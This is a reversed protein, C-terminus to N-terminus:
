SVFNSHLIGCYSKVDKREITGEKGAVKVFGGSSAQSFSTNGYGTPRRDRKVRTM